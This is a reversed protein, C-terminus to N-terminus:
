DTIHFTFDYLQIKKTYILCNTFHIIYSALGLYKLQTAAETLEGYCLSLAYYWARQELRIFRILHIYLDDSSAHGKTEEYLERIYNYSQTRLDNDRIHGEEHMKEAQLCNALLIKNKENNLDLNTKGSIAMACIGVYVSDVYYEPKFLYAGSAAGTSRIQLTYDRFIQNKFSPCLNYVVLPTLDRKLNNKNKDTFVADRQLYLDVGKRLMDSRIGTDSALKNLQFHYFFDYEKKFMLKKPISVETRNKYVHWLYKLSM